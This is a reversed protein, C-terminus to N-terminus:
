YLKTIVIVTYLLNVFYKLGMKAREETGIGKFSNQRNKDMNIWLKFQGSNKGYLLEVLNSLPRM